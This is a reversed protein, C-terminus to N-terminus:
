FPWLLRILSWFASALDAWFGWGLIGLAAITAAIIVADISARGQKAWYVDELHLWLAFEDLTLAAGIGFLVAWISRHVSPSVAIGVYGSILLLFIGPVLHHLHTGSKTRLNHFVHTWRGARIAHTIIRVSAFTLLFSILVVLQAEKGADVIGVQYADAVDQWFRDL